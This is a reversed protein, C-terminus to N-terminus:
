DRRVGVTGDGEARKVDEDLVGAGKLVEIVKDVMAGDVGKTREFFEVGKLWERADEEGYYCGLEKSGLLAVCEDQRELFIEKGRDVAEFFGKLVGERESGGLGERAAVCWSPWPTYIEGLWKLEKKQGEQWFGKTTFHEWMFFDAKGGVQVGDRLEKFPGLVEFEVRGMDWGERQALVFAMVHSGSGLRSVGVRIKKADGGGSGLDRVESLGERGTGTVVAWRLPNAVWSGVVQYGRERRGQATLLGAIWGETLGIAIDLENARLLSTMQGTGSPCSILEVAFPFLSARSALHLPLLYHEPVYGIRIPSPPSAAM